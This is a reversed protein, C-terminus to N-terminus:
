ERFSQCSTHRFIYYLHEIRLHPVSIGSPDAFQPVTAAAPAGNENNPKANRLAKKTKLPNAPHFRSITLTMDATGTDIREPDPM